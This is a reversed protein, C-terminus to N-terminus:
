QNLIFERVIERDDLHHKVGNIEQYDEHGKGAILVADGPLTNQLAAIIAERRDVIVSLARYAPSIGSKIEDIITEPSESRPNDSTLYLRDSHRAAIKGMAPRKSKDRDGGCGFLTILRNYPLKKLATLVNQMADPTHAYDVFVGAGNKLTFKELRGPVAFLNNKLIEASHALPLIGVADLAIVTGAVNYINYTGCLNITFNQRRDDKILEFTSGNTDAAINAIMPKPIM